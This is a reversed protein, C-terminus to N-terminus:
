SKGLLIMLGWQIRQIDSVVDSLDSNLDMCRATCSSIGDMIAHRIRMDFTAMGAKQGAKALEEVDQLQKRLLPADQATQLIESVAAAQSALRTGLALTVAEQLPSPLLETFLETKLRTTPWKKVASTLQRILAKELEEGLNPVGHEQLRQLLTRLIPFQGEQLGPKLLQLLRRTLAQLVVNESRSLSSIVRVSENCDDLTANSIWLTVGEIVAPFLQDSAFDKSILILAIEHCGALTNLRAAPSSGVNEPHQACSIIRYELSSKAQRIDGLLGEEAQLAVLVDVAPRFTQVPSKLFLDCVRKHLAACLNESESDRFYCERLLLSIYGILRPFEVLSTRSICGIIDRLRLTGVPPLSQPFAVPTLAVSGSVPQAGFRDVLVPSYGSDSGLVGNSAPGRTARPPRRTRQPTSDSLYPSSPSTPSAPTIAVADPLNTVSNSTAPLQLRPRSTGRRMSQQPLLLTQSQQRADRGRSPVSLATRQGVSTRRGSGPSDISPLTAIQPLSLSVRAEARQVPATDAALRIQRRM